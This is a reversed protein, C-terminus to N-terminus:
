LRRLEKAGDAVSKIQGADQAAATLPAFFAFFGCFLAYAASKM